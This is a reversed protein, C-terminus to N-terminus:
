QSILSEFVWAACQKEPKSKCRNQINTYVTAWAFIFLLEAYLKQLLMYRESWHQRSAKNKLVHLSAVESSNQIVNSMFIRKRKEGIAVSSHIFRGLISRVKKLDQVSIKFCKSFFKEHRQRIDYLMVITAFDLIFKIAVMIVDLVGGNDRGARPHPAISNSGM